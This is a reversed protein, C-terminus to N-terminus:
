QARTPLWGTAALRSLVSRFSPFAPQWVLERKLRTNAVPIRVEDMFVAAYSAFPRVLWKPLKRPPRAGLQDAMESAYDAFSVREDDVVNYVRRPSRHELALVAAADELAIWSLIAHGGGILPLCRTSVLRTLERTAASEAGRFM